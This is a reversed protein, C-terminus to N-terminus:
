SFECFALLGIVLEETRWKVGVSMAALHAELYNGITFTFTIAFLM